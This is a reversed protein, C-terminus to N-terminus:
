NITITNKLWTVGHINQKHVQGQLRGNTYITKFINLTIKRQWKYDNNIENACGYIHLQKSKSWTLESISKTSCQQRLCIGLTRTHIQNKYNKAFM